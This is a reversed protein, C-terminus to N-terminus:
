RKSVAHIVRDHEFFVAFGAYDWRTIPPDGVPGQRSAPTGFEAEVRAQTMGRAPKGATEFRAANDTGGMQLTDASAVGLLSFALATLSLLRVKMM